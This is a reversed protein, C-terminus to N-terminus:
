EMICANLEDSNQTLKGQSILILEKVRDNTVNTLLDDLSGNFDSMEALRARAEDLTRQNQNTEDSGLQIAFFPIKNGESDTFQNTSQDAKCVPNPGGLKSCDGEPNPVSTFDADDGCKWYEWGCLEENCGGFKAEEDAACVIPALGATKDPCSPYHITATLTFNTPPESEFLFLPSNSPKIGGIEEAEIYFRDGTQLTNLSILYNWTSENDQFDASNLEERRGDTYIKYFKLKQITMVDKFEGCEVITIVELLSSKKGNIIPMQPWNQSHAIKNINPSDPDTNKIAITWQSDFEPPQYTEQSNKTPAKFRVTVRSDSWELVDFKLVFNETDSPITNDHLRDSKSMPSQTIYAFGIAGRVNGFGTGEIDLTEGLDLRGSSIKYIGPPISGSSNGSGPKPIATDELTRPCQLGSSNLNQNAYLSCIEPNFISNNFGTNPYKYTGEGVVGDTYETAPPYKELDKQLCENEITVWTCPHGDSYESYTLGVAHSLEHAILGLIPNKLSPSPNSNLVILSQESMWMRSKGGRPISNGTGMMFFVYLKNPDRNVLSDGGLGYYLEAIDNTNSPRSPLSYQSIAIQVTSPPKFRLGGSKESFWDSVESMASIIGPNLNTNNYRAEYGKPIVIVPVIEFEDAKVCSVKFGLFITFLLILVTLKNIRGM